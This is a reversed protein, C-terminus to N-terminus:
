KEMEYIVSVLIRCGTNGIPHGLGIGRRERECDGEGKLTHELCIENWDNKFHGNQTSGYLSYAFAYYSRLGRSAPM